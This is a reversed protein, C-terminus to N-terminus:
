DINNGMQQFRKKWWKHIITALSRAEIRGFIGAPFFIIVLVIAAGVLIHHYIVGFRRLYESGIEIIFAGVVPGTITGLGGIATMAIIQATILPRMLDPTILLLYHAYYSGAVGAFFSSVLFALLKYFAVNLGHAEALAEDERVSRFALGIHSRALLYLAISSIILMILAFYLYHTKTQPIYPFAPYGRLGRSGYTVNDWNITIIRITESLALTSLALYPGRLRLSPLGVFFGAIASVFGGLLLGWWSSIGLRLSALASIYAGLGFFGAHGFTLQGAYGSVIDWSASLVGYICCMIFIHLVYDNPNLLPLLATFVVIIFFAIKDGSLRKLFPM